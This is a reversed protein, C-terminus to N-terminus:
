NLYPCPIEKSPQKRGQTTFVRFDLDGCEGLIEPITETMGCKEMVRAAAPNSTAGLITAEKPMQNLALALGKSALGQGEWGKETAIGLAWLTEGEPTRAQALALHAADQGNVTVVWTKRTPSEVNPRLAVVDKPAM